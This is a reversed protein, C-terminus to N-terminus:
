SHPLSLIQNRFRLDILTPRFPNPLIYSTSSPSICIMIRSSAASKAFERLYIQIAVPDYVSISISVRDAEVLAVLGFDRRTGTVLTYITLRTSIDINNLGRVKQFRVRDRLSVYIKRVRVPPVSVYIVWADSDEKM